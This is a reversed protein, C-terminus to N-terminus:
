VVINLNRGQLTPPRMSIPGLSRELTAILVPHGWVLFVSRWWGRREFWGIPLGRFKLRQLGSRIRERSFETTQVELYATPTPMYWQGVAGPRHALAM